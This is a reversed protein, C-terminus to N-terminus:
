GELGETRMRVIRDVGARVAPNAVGATRSFLKRSATRGLNEVADKIGPAFKGLSKYAVVPASYRFLPNNLLPNVLKGDRVVTKIVKGGTFVGPAIGIRLAKFGERSMQNLLKGEVFNHFRASNVGGLRKLQDKFRIAYDDLNGIVLKKLSAKGIQQAIVKKAAARGGAKFAAGVAGKAISATGGGLLSLPDTFFGGVIDVGMKLWPNEIDAVGWKSLVDSFELKDEAESFSLANEGIGHAFSFTSGKALFEAANELAGTVNGTIINRVFFGPLGIFNGVRGLLGPTQEEALQGTLQPLTPAMRPMSTFSAYPSAGTRGGGLISAYPSRYGM